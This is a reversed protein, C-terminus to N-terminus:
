GKIQKSETLELRRKSPERTLTQIAGSREKANPVSSTTPMATAPQNEELDMLRRFLAIPVPGDWEYAGIQRKVIVGARNIVYSEPVGTTQYLGEIRRGRDQLVDFTLDREQVWRLVKATPAIDISVAVIKLGDPGLTEHLRQMSPMEEECPKCWTAWINLLVVEGRYDALTTIEGTAVDVAEFDPAESGPGILRRESTLAATVVLVATLGALVLGVAFWETKAAM